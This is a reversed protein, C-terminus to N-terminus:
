GGTRKMWGSRVLVLVKALQWEAWVYEPEGGDGRSIDLAAAWGRGAM